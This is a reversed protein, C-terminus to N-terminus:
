MVKWNASGPWRRVLVAMDAESMEIEIHEDDEGPMELATDLLILYNELTDWLEGLGAEKYYPHAKLTELLRMAGRVEYLEITALVLAIRIHPM